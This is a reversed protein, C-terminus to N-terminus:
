QDPIGSQRTPVACLTRYIAITAAAFSSLGWTPSVSARPPQQVSLRSLLEALARRDRAPFTWAASCEEGLGGADSTILPKDFARALSLVGSQETSQYPLVVVRAMRFWSSVDEDHVYGTFVTSRELGLRRVMGNVHALHLHDPVEM